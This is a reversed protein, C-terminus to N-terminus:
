EKSAMEWIKELEKNSDQGRNLRSVFSIGLLKIDPDNEPDHSITFQFNVTYISRDRITIGKITAFAEILFPIRAELGVTVADKKPPFRRALQKKIQAIEGPLHLMFDPPRVLTKRGDLSSPFRFNVQQLLFAQDQPILKISENNNQIEGHIVLSRSGNYELQTMQLAQESIQCSRVSSIIAILSIGAAISSIVDSTKM